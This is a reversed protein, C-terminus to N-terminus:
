LEFGDLLQIYTDIGNKIESLLVFEDATHSRSSEGPGIKISTYPIRMQDSSTPSGYYTLGLALGRQVIPHALPIHSSNLHTSRPVVDCSVNQKVIEVVETNKYFENTRIDVVFTCKDPVVNHQTGANIMTVSMKVAGSLESQKPFRYTRFWNIDDIAKYLANEGEERAAHGSKGQATCDLVLLGKETVAMQMGTPEGVVALDIPPLETIMTACGDKGSVEEEASVSFILNYSQETKALICFTELLCVLSAGADNSGLGFLKDGEVDPKFPERSWASVSRVTDIHSNLLLTKKQPNFARAFVWLNNGKRNVTGSDTLRVTIEQQLFDAAAKEERSFSPIAILNQLLAIANEHNKNM